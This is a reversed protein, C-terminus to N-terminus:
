RFWSRVMSVLKLLKRFIKLPAQIRLSCWRTHFVRTQDELGVQVLGTREAFGRDSKDRSALVCRRSAQLNRIRSPLRVVTKAKEEM